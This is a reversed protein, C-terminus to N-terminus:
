YRYLLLFSRGRQSWPKGRSSLLSLTEDTVTEIGMQVRLGFFLVFNIPFSTRSGTRNLPWRLTGVWVEFLYPTRSPVSSPVDMSLTHSSRPSARPSYPYRTVHHAFFSQVSSRNSNMYRSRSVRGVFGYNTESVSKNRREGYGDKHRPDWSGVTPPHSALSGSLCCVPSVSLSSLSPYVSSLSGASPSPLSLYTSLSLSLSPTRLRSHARNTIFGKVTRTDRRQGECQVTACM